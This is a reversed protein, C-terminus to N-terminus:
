EEQMHTRKLLDKLKNQNDERESVRLVKYYTNGMIEIKETRVERLLKSKVKESIIVEQKSMEALKRSFPITTGLGTYKLSGKEISTILDGSNIGIGFEIKDSYKRNSEQLLTNIELGMKIASYENKYTKTKRSSFIMFIDREKFDMAANHKEGIEKIIKEVNNKIFPKLENKIRVTVITSPERLGNIVTSAQANNLKARKEQDLINRGRSDSKMNRLNEIKSKVRSNLGFTKRNYRFFGVIGLLIILTIIISWVFPYGSFLLFKGYDEISIANGTLLLRKELGNNGGEIRIDHEGTPASLTFKREEGQKINLSLNRPEQGITINIDGVFDGNGINKIVLVSSDELFSYNLLPIENVKINREEILRGYLSYLKWNGATANTPINIIGTSGSDVALNIKERLPSMFEISIRGQMNKGSQDFLTAQFEFPKGPNIELSPITLPVSYAIQNIKFNLTTTKSNLIEGNKDKDFAQITLSYEGAELNNETVFIEKITGDLIQKEFEIIGTAKVFGELKQGNSKIADIELVIAEGPDYFEKDLSAQVNIDSSIRFKESHAIINGLNAALQCEGTLNGIYEKSLIIKHNIKTEQNATFASEAPSIKYFTESYEGCILNLEFNGEVVSPNITLTTYITDGLNYISAPSSITITASATSILIILLIFALQSKKM